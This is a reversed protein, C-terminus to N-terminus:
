GIVVSAVLNLLCTVQVLSLLQLEFEVRDVVRPPEPLLTSGRAYEVPCSFVAKEGKAMSQLAEELGTSEDKQNTKCCTHDSQLPKKLKPM